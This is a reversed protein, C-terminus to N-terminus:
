NKTYRLKNIEKNYQTRSIKKVFPEILKNIADIKIKIEAMKKKNKAKHAIEYQQLLINRTPLLDSRPLKPDYLTKDFKYIDGNRDEVYSALIQAPM